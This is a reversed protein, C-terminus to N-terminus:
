AGGEGEVRMWDALGTLEVERQVRNVEKWRLPWWALGPLWSKKVQIM